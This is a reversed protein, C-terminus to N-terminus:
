TIQPIVALLLSAAAMFLTALLFRPTEGSMLKALFRLTRKMM